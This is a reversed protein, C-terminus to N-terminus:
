TLERRCLQYVDDEEGPLPDSFPAMGAAMRLRQIRENVLALAEARIEPEAVALWGRAEERVYSVAAAADGLGFRQMQLAFARLRMGEPHEAYLTRRRSTVLHRYLAWTRQRERLAKEAMEQVRESGRPKM